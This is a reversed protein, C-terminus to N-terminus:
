LKIWADPLKTRSIGDFFWSEESPAIVKKNPNPNLYAAWWSFTSNAIIQHKCSAMTNMDDIENDSNWMEFRDKGVLNTFYDVCWEKDRIDRDEGQRDQCFILFKDDPFMDIAKRYYETAWLNFHFDSGVYDGRRIHIAVQNIQDKIGVRFLTKIEEAYEKFYEEDQVYVDPILGKRAQAYIYAHRFMQNGLRGSYKHIPIM